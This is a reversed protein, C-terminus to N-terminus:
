GRGYVQRYNSRWSQPTMKDSVDDTKIPESYKEDGSMNDIVPQTTVISGPNGPIKSEEDGKAEEYLKAYRGLLANYQSETMIVKM